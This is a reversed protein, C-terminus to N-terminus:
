LYLNSLTFRLHSAKQYSISMVNYITIYNLMAISLTWFDFWLTQFSISTIMSSFLTSISDILFNETKLTIMMIKFGIILVIEFRIVSLVCFFNMSLKIMLKKRLWILRTWIQWLISFFYFHRNIKSQLTRIKSLKLDLFM